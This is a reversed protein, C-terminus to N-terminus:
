DFGREPLPSHHRPLWAPSRCTPGLTPRPATGDSPTPVRKKKKKPLLPPPDTCSTLRQIAVLFKLSNQKKREEHRLTKMAPVTGPSQLTPFLFCTSIFMLFCPEKFLKGGRHGRRSFVRTVHLFLSLLTLAALVGPSCCYYNSISPILCHSHTVCKVRHQGCEAM